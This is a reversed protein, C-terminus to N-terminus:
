VDFVVPHIDALWPCTFMIMDHKFSTIKQQQHKTQKKRKKQKTRRINNQKTKNKIKFPAIGPLGITTNDGLALALDLKDFNYQSPHYM